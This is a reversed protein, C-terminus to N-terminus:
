KAEMVLTRQKQYPFNKLDQWRKDGAWETYPGNADVYHLFVQGSYYNPPGDCKDRWHDIECGKYIIADGEAMDFRIDGMYIPWAYHHSRGLQITVSYECSPRDAHKELIDGNSYLRAYSYTPILEKGTCKEITPWLREQLTDFAINGHVSVLSNPVQPDGVQGNIANERMLIHTLFYCFEIPVLKTLHVAGYTNLLDTSITM